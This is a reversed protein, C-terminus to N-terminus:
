GGGVFQVIEIQDESSILTFQYESRLVIQHNREVAVSGSNLELKVLLDLVTSGSLIAQNQGNVVIHIMTQTMM